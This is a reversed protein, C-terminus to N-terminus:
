AGLNLQYFYRAFEDIHGLAGYLHITKDYGGTIYATGIHHEHLARMCARLTIKSYGKNHHEAHTCVREIEATNNAYDIFAECGSVHTGTEDVLVFDFQADYIPSTRIYARIAEDTRLDDSHNPWASRRLIGQNAYDKNEAMSQFRLPGTPYPYDRFHATDFIRIMEVEGTKQYGAQELAFIRRGHAEVASTILRRYSAGWEARAWALMEPYLHEYEDLVIIDFQEDFEESIVFGVLEDDFSFWLHAAAAFNGPFRRKFNFLNYKWDVLRGIQWTFAARKGANDRVLLAYMRKFDSSEYVFPRHYTKM